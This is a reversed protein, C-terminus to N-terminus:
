FGDAYRLEADDHKVILGGPTQATATSPAPRTTLSHNVSEAQWSSWVEGAASLAQDARRAFDQGPFYRGAEVHSIYSRDFRMAEALAQMSIRRVEKRWRRLEAAFTPRSVTATSDGM